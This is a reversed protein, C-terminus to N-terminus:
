QILGSLIEAVSTNIEEDSKQSVELRLQAIKLVAQLHRDRYEMPMRIQLLSDEVFSLMEDKQVHSSLEGSLKEVSSVYQTQLQEPTLSPATQVNTNEIGPLETQSSNQDVAVKSKSFLSFLLIAVAVIIGLAIFGFVFFILSSQNNKRFFM